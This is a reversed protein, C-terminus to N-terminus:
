ALDLGVDLGRALRDLYDQRPMDRAGLSELHATHVQCDLLDYGRELMREVLAVLAVKSADRELHFMSEGCFVRGVSVGYLGGVLRGDRWTEISHASVDGTVPERHLASYAPGMRHDIWTGQGDGRPAACAEMVDDFRVEFGSRRITKRLSRSVRLEDLEMVFRPDPCFWLLPFRADVPWPFIGERYARRLTNPTVLGGAALVGDENAWHQPPFRFNEGQLWAITDL